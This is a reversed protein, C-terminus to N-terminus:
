PGGLAYFTVPRPVERSLPKDPQPPPWIYVTVNPPKAEIGQVRAAEMVAQSYPEGAKKPGLAARRGADSITEGPERVIAGSPPTLPSTPRQVVGIGWIALVLAVSAGLMVIVGLRQKDSRVTM